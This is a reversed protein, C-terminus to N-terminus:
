KRDYTCINGANRKRLDLYEEWHGTIMCGLDTIGKSHFIM